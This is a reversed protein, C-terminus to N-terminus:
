GLALILNKSPFLIGLVLYPYFIFVLADIAGILFTV